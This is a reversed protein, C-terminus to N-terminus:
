KLCIFIPFSQCCRRPILDPNPNRSHPVELRVLPEYYHTHGHWLSFFLYVYVRIDEGWWHCAKSIETNSKSGNNTQIETWLCIKLFNFQNLWVQQEFDISEIVWSFSNVLDGILDHPFPIWGFWDILILWKQPVSIFWNMHFSGISNIPIYTQM